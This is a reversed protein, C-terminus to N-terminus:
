IGDVLGSILSGQIIGERYIELKWCELDGETRM